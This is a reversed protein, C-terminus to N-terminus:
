KRRRGLLCRFTPKSPDADWVILPCRLLAPVRLHSHIYKVAQESCEAALGTKLISMGSKKMDCM